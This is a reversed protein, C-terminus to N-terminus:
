TDELTGTLMGIFKKMAPTLIRGKRHIIAIPRKFTKNKFQACSLLGQQVEAQVTRAPLIAIGANIEIARKVTEINDFEMVPELSIKAERFITDIAKRTPIDQDFGVFDQGALQSLEVEKEQALPHKSSTVLVLHDEKFPIIELKRNKVPFAVLGIDVSNQLVDEYVLNSRRYEIHVNVSPFEQMFLKMHHPLEHLGVSYITAVKITGSIVERMEQLECDLREYVHLLEKSYEYLKKGEPTLRFRKQSRDVILVRFHREVSRLQQSVASQTIGNMKAARSFSESEVLDCYIKFNQINM